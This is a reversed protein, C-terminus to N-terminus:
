LLSQQEDITEGVDNVLESTDDDSETAENDSDDEDSSWPLPTERSARFFRMFQFFRTPVDTSISSVFSRTDPPDLQTILESNPLIADTIIKNDKNEDFRILKGRNLAYMNIFTKDYQDLTLPSQSNYILAHWPIITAWDNFMGKTIDYKAGNVDYKKTKVYMGTCNELFVEQLLSQIEMTVVANPSLTTEVVASITYYVVKCLESYRRNLGNRQTILPIFQGSVGIEMLGDLYNNCCRMVAYLYRRDIEYGTVVYGIFHAINPMANQVTTQFKRADFKINSSPVFNPGNSDFKNEFIAPIDVLPLIVDKVSANLFSKTSCITMDGNPLYGPEVKQPPDALPQPVGQQYDGGIVNKQQEEITSTM